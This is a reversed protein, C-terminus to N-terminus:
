VVAFPFWATLTLAAVVSFDFEKLKVMHVPVACQVALGVIETRSPRPKPLPYLNISIRFAKLHEAPIAVACFKRAWRTQIGSLRVLAIGSIIWICAFVNPLYERTIALEIRTPIAIKKPVAKTTARRHSYTTM